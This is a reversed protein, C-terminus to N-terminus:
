HVNKYKNQIGITNMITCGSKPVATEKLVLYQGLLIVTSLKAFESTQLSFPGLKLWSRAGRGNPLYGIGPILTLILLFLPPLLYDHFVRDEFHM